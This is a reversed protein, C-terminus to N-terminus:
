TAAAAAARRAARRELRGEVLSYVAPVVVLTLLTSSVMGGIVAVALPGNTDSGAGVGLAAPLMALVITLSTMLVPRMRIPCARALAADIAMGQARLQNTLDILLISNKAVLGVLLVLGIMSFSNITHGLLWLAFVGGIIALPQAIMVILPQIFSNFQSALVMYVLVIATVFTMLMYKSTKRFEEARGALQVRYGPKMQANALELVRAGAEAEPITPATYFNAAYQLDYRAIVAPAVVPRLAAVSDLRLMEGSPTRLWIRSLDGAQALEGEAAKLRIHYREGDGPVDNYDAVDWGGALVGLALAVDRASLGVSALQDRDVELQLQPLSLQLDLDLGGLTGERLLRERLEEALRAVEGLEPGTLVFHLPEGRMGGLPSAPAPFARLGPIEALEREVRAIIEEQSARREHWPRLHVIMSAQSVQRADSQGITSFYGDIEPQRALVEEVRALREEAKEISSGLPVKVTVTFYGDDQVPFLAKGILGFVWGSSLVALTALLVVGWRARLAFALLRAYDEELRDFARGFFQAVRNERVRLRLHRSCLMPTLTLSVLLSALVGVTVVVAFAQFMRAVMGQMFVVPAFISVLTLTSAMVALVVERAGELTASVMDKGSEEAHRFVSELVVIADDVVVGILLLLGLLTMNNFTFGLFYIAAVAGLLSVPIAAAIILTARLNRLFMLVVLATLVTGLVIHENLATVIQEILDGENHVIGIALGPPMQPEIEEALRRKVERVIGVSDAGRVKVIGIGVTPKGNYRALVRFDALGDEVRAIDSLRIPAGERQVVIMQALSDLDHFELDAKLMEEGTGGVLFGGPLRVHERQFAGVVDQVTVGSGAMRDLELEVRITRRREGGIRVEGVGAITELRRKIHNEAYVNLQQLTRDGSLTLWMIPYGGIEIKAVVPPDIGDPLQPLIQNVKAQVENFAVDLDKELEFRVRVVSVDPASISDVHEIGAVGNVAKEITNTISSDVTEPNAGPLRTLVSIMPFDAQPYRDVGIRDFSIVGFLILVASLMYALVHRRVSLEPLNV